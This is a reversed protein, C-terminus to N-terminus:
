LRGFYLQACYWFVLLISPPVRLAPLRRGIWNGICLLGRINWAWNSNFPWAVAADFPAVKSRRLGAVPSTAVRAAAAVMSSTSAATAAACAAKGAQDVM